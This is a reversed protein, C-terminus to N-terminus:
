PPAQEAAAGPSGAGRVFDNRLAPDYVRTKRRRLLWLGWSAHSLRQQPASAVAM